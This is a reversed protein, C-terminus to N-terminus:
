GQRGTTRFTLTFKMVKTDMFKSQETSVLVVDQFRGGQGLATMFKAIHSNTMGYGVLSIKDGTLSLQDVWCTDPLAVTIADLVRVPGTRAAQLNSIIDFKRKLEAKRVKFKEVEGIEKKLQEIKMNAKQTDAKLTEIRASVSRHFFFIGLAVLVPVLLFLLDANFERKKKRKGRVLNIRIM